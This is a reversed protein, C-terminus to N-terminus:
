QSSRDSDFHNYDLRMFIASGSPLDWQQRITEVDWFLAKSRAGNSGESVVIRRLDFYKRSNDTLCFCTSRLFTHLWLLITAQKEWRELCSPCILKVNASMDSIILMFFHKCVTLLAGPHIYSEASKEPSCVRKTTLSFAQLTLTMSLWRKESIIILPAKQNIAWSESGNNSLM